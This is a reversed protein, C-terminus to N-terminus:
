HNAHSFERALYDRKALRDTYNYQTLSPLVNEHLLIYQCRGYIRHEQMWGEFDRIMEQLREASCSAGDFFIWLKASTHGDFEEYNEPVSQTALKTLESFVKIENLGTMAKLETQAYQSFKDKAAILLHTDQYVIEGDVTKRTVVFTETERHGDVPYAWLQEPELVGKAIYGAYAFARGYKQEVNQLMEEIAVIAKKRTRTLAEYETPLGVEALIAKQRESLIIKTESHNKM